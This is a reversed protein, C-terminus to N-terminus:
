KATTQTFPSGKIHKNMLKVSITYTGGPQHLSYTIAYTGDQNDVVKAAVQGGPGEVLGQFPDGGDTKKKVM